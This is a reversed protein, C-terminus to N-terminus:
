PELEGSVVKSEVKLQIVKQVVAEIALGCASGIGALVARENGPNTNVCFGFACLPSIFHSLIYPIHSRLTKHYDCEVGTEKKVQVLPAIMEFSAYGDKVVHDKQLIGLLTNLSLRSDAFEQACKWCSLHRAAEMDAETEPHSYSPNLPSLQNKILQPQQTHTLEHFLFGKKQGYNVLLFRPNVYIQPNAEITTCAMFPGFAMKIPQHSDTGFTKEGFKLLRQCIAPAIIHTPKFMCFSSHIFTSLTLFIIIKKM